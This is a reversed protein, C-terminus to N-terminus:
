IWSPLTMKHRSCMKWPPDRLLDDLTLKSKEVIQDRSEAGVQSVSLCLQDLEETNRFKKGINQSLLKLWSDGGILFAALLFNFYFENNPVSYGANYSLYEDGVKLERTIRGDRMYVHNRALREKNVCRWSHRTGFAHRVLGSPDLNVSSGFMWWKLCLYPEGGGYPGFARDYFGFSEIEERRVAFLCAGAMPIKWPSTLDIGEPPYRCPDGWFREVLRPDMGFLKIHEDDGWMQLPVHWLGGLEEAKSCISKLTGHRVSIHADAVVIIDGTAEKYGANIACWTSFKDTYRVVKLIGARVWRRYKDTLIDATYDDSRNDVVIIECPIGCSELDDYLCHLTGLITPFENRCRVIVSVKDM